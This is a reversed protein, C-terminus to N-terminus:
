ADDDEGQAARSVKAPVKEELRALAAAKDQPTVPREDKADKEDEDGKLRELLAAVRAADVLALREEETLIREPDSEMRRNIREVNKKMAEMTPRRLSPPRAM